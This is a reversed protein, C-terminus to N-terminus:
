YVMAQEQVMSGANMLVKMAMGWRKQAKRMNFYLAAWNRNKFAVTRGLYSLAATTEIPELNVQISVKIAESCQQLTECQRRHEQGLRRQELTYNQSNIIWPPM